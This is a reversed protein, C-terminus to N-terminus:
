DVNWGTLGARNAELASYVVVAAIVIVGGAVAWPGPTEGVFLFVM